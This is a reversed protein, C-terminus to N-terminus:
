REFLLMRMEDNFAVVLVILCTSSIFDLKKQFGRGKAIHLTQILAYFVAVVLGYSVSDVWIANAMGASLTMSFLQLDQKFLAPSLM